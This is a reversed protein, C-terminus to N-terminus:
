TLQQPMQYQAVLKMSHCVDTSRQSKVNKLVLTQGNSNSINMWQVEDINSTEWYYRIIGKGTAKCNLTFSISTNVVKNNPHTKIIPPGVYTIM